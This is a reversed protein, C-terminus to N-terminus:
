IVFMHKVMTTFDFTIDVIFFILLKKLINIM